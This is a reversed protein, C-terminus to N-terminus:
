SASSPVADPHRVTEVWGSTERTWTRLGDDCDVAVWLSGGRVAIAGSGVLGAVGTAVMETTDDDFHVVVRDLHDGEPGPAAVVVDVGGPAWRASVVGRMGDVTRPPQGDDWRAPVVAI